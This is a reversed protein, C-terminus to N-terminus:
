IPWANASRTVRYEEMSVKGLQPTLKCQRSGWPFKRQKELLEAGEREQWTDLDLDGIGPIAVSRRMTNARSQIGTVSLNWALCIQCLSLSTWTASSCIGSLWYKPSRPRSLASPRRTSPRRRTATCSRSGTFSGGQQVVREVYADFEVFPQLEDGVKTRNALSEPLPEIGASHFATDSFVSM